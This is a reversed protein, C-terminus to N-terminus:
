YRMNAYAFIVRAFQCAPRRFIIFYRRHIENGRSHRFLQLVKFVTIAHFRKVFTHKRCVHFQTFFLFDGPRPYLSINRSYKFIFWAGSTESFDIPVDGASNERHLTNVKGSVPASDGCTDVRAHFRRILKKLMYYELRARRLYSMKLLCNQYQRSRHNSLLKLYAM